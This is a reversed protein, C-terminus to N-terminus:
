DVIPEGTVTINTTLVEPWPPYPAENGPEPTGPPGPPEAPILPGDAASVISQIWVKFDSVALAQTRDTIDPLHIDRATWITETAGNDGFAGQQAILAELAAQYVQASIRTSPEDQEVVYAGVKFPFWGSYRGQSHKEPEGLVGPCSIVVSPSQYEAWNELDFAAAVARPRELSGVTLGSQREVEALYSPGWLAITAIIANEIVTTPVIPAFISEPM